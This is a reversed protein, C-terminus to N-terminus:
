IANLSGPRLEVNCLELRSACPGEPLHGIACKNPSATLVPWGKQSAAGLSMGHGLCYGGIGVSLVSVAGEFRDTQKTEGCYRIRHCFTFKRLIVLFMDAIRVEDRLSPMQSARM